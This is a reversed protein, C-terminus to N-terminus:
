SARAQMGLTLFILLQHFIMTYKSSGHQCSTTVVHLLLSLSVWSEGGYTQTKVLGM